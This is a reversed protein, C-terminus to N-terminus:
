ADFTILWNEQEHLHRGWFFALIGVIIAILLYTQDAFAAPPHRGILADRMMGGGMATVIALVVAGMLDLKKTLARLAGTLAFVATGFLDLAHIAAPLQIVAGSM